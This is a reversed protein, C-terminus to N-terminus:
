GITISTYLPKDLHLSKSFNEVAWDPARLGLAMRAPNGPMVRAILFVLISLGL